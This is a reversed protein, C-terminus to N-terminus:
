ASILVYKHIINRGYYIGGAYQLKLNICINKPPGEKLHNFHTKSSDVDVATIQNEVNTSM